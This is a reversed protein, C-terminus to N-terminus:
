MSHDTSDCHLGMRLNSDPRMKHPKPAVFGQHMASHAHAARTSHAPAVPRAQAGYTTSVLVGAVATVALTRTVRAISM